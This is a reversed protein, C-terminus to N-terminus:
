WRHERGRDRYWDILEPADVSRPDLSVDTRGALVGCIPVELKKGTRTHPIGPAEIVEDPVHRPSLRKRIQQAIKGALEADFRTGPALTVFLPMWYAGDPGDVGLVFAEAIEDLSEVVEYIDASGMRIGNRNLTADSRGHIVLSGRGTVTVWDGHRWVGPALGDAWEHEFYAARYRSGDEDQWFAVPMSPMPSLIVMEGVEDVLARRERSWSHLDTGLYRVSLEGPRPPVGTTGGAFATCVDTGGSLSSVAVDSGIYTGAWHFLEPSLPSGSSGVTRLRRLDHTSAPTTEAKRCAQLHGPSTGFYTVKEAEILEWLRGADPFMPHGSFCMVTAGVLLGGLRYNWMMWSLATQWYFVDGPGIDGHLGVVKLHELIVGGHGHVIGKPKGTTGSSFLVWLQHDFPVPETTPEAAGTPLELIVPPNGPLLRRLEEVDARKDVWRGNYQYGASAFLVAPNLQGLRAAAGEPAYDQGCGSWVAGLAATALFAIMAEPIDPLYAAVCDGRRVGLRRLEAAVAGIRQPLEKWSIETRRGTEDVGVIAPGPRGAHRLVQDVYNLRVGPFWQAGPMVSEPLIGGDGDRLGTGSVGYFEWLARWFQPIAEVSWRWVESYDGNPAGYHASAYEVFRTYTSESM